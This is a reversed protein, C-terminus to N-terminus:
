NDPGRRLEGLPPGWLSGGTPNWSIPDCPPVVLTRLPIVLPPGLLLTRFSSGGPTTGWPPIGLATGWPPNGLQPGGPPDGLSFGGLPTGFHPEGLPTGGPPDMLPNGLPLDATEHGQTPNGLPTRALACEGNRHERQPNGRPPEGTPTVTPPEGTPTGPPTGWPSRRIQPGWPHDRLPNGWPTVGMPDVMTNGAHPTAWPPKRISQRGLATGFNPEWSNGLAQDGLFSVWPSDALRRWLVIGIAPDSLTVLHTRLPDALPLECLPDV